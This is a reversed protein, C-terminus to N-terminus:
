RRRLKSQSESVNITYRSLKRGNHAYTQWTVSTDSITVPKIVNEKLDHLYVRVSGPLHFALRASEEDTLYGTELAYNTKTEQVYRDQEFELTNNDYTRDMTFPTIKDTRKGTGEIAFADWGGYANLYYLVYRVCGVKRDYGLGPNDSTDGTTAVKSSSATSRRVTRLRLMGPFYHGNIPDSVDVSQGTVPKDLSYSWDDYFRYDGVASGDVILNFTRQSLPHVEETPTVPLTELLATIDSSLYYSCVKNINIRLDEADPYRVARGSFITEGDLMIRYTVSTATTTHYTDQFVPQTYLTPM